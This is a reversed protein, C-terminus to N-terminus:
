FTMRRLASMLKRPQVPKFLLPVGAAMVRHMEDATTDGTIVVAPV